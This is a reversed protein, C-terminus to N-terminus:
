SKLKPDLELLDLHLPLAHAVIARVGGKTVFIVVVSQGGDLLM